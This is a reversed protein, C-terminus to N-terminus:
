PTDKPDNWTWPKSAEKKGRARKREQRKQELQELPSIGPDPLLAQLHDHLGLAQMIRIFSDLSIGKDDQVLRTLTSRSIGAKSALEAQTMNLSLRIAELRQSLATEVGESSVLSFDIKHM